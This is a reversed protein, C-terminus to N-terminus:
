GEAPPDVAMNHVVPHRVHIQADKTREHVFFFSTTPSLQRTTSKRLLRYNAFMSSPATPVTPPNAVPAAVTPPATATPASAVPTAVAVAASAVPATPTAVVVATTPVAVVTPAAAAAPTPAARGRGVAAASPAVAAADFGVIDKLKMAYKEMNRAQKDNMYVEAYQKFLGMMPEGTIYFFSNNTARIDKTQITLTVRLQVDPGTLFKTTEDNFTLPSM